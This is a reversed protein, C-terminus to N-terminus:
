HASWEWFKLRKVIYWNLVKNLVVYKIGLDGQSDLTEGIENWKIGRLDEFGRSILQDYPLKEDTWNIAPEIM